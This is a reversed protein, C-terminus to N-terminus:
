NQPAVHARPDDGHLPWGAPLKLHRLHEAYERTTRSWGDLGAEADFSDDGTLARRIADAMNAFRVAEEPALCEPGGLTGNAEDPHPLGTDLCACFVVRGFLPTLQGGRLSTTILSAAVNLPASKEGADDRMAVCVEGPLWFLRPIAQLDDSLRGMHPHATVIRSTNDDEVIVYM